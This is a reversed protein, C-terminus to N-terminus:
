PQGPRWTPGSSRQLRWCERCPWTATGWFGVKGVWGSTWLLNWTRLWCMPPLGWPNDIWCTQALFTELSHWIDPWQLHLLNSHCWSNEEVINRSWWVRELALLEWRIQRRNKNRSYFLIFRASGIHNLPGYGTNLLWLLMLTMTLWNTYTPSGM